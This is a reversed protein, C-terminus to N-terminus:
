CPVSYEKLEVLIIFHNIQPSILYSSALFRGPFRDTWTGPLRVTSLHGSSDRVAMFCVFALLFKIFLRHKKFVSCTFSEHQKYHITFKQLLHILSYSSTRFLDTTIMSTTRDTLQVAIKSIIQLRFMWCAVIVLKFMVLLNWFFTFGTMLMIFYLFLIIVTKISIFPRPVDCTLYCPM